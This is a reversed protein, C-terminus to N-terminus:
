NLLRKAHKVNKIGDTDSPWIKEMIELDLAKRVMQFVEDERAFADIEWPLKRYEAYTLEDGYHMPTGGWEIAHLDENYSLLGLQVQEAHIMEHCSFRVLEKFHYVGSLYITNTKACHQGPSQWEILKPNCTIVFKLDDPLDLIGEDQVLLAFSPSDILCRIL